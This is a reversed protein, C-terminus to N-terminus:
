ADGLSKLVTEIAAPTTAADIALLARQRRLEIADLDDAAGAKSSVLTAFNRVALGRLAAEAAFGEAPAAGALVAAAQDAKRRHALSRQAHLSMHNAFYANIQKVADARCDPMPDLNLKLSM